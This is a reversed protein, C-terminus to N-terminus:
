PREWDESGDGVQITSSCMALGPEDLKGDGHSIGFGKLFMGGHSDDESADRSSNELSSTPSGRQSQM